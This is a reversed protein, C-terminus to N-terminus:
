VRVKYKCNKEMYWVLMADMRVESPPVEGLIPNQFTTSYSIYFYAIPVIIRDRM